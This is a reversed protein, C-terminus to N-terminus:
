NVVKVYGTVQITGSVRELWAGSAAALGDPGYWERASESAGLSVTALIPDTNATGHRINFLAGATGTTERASFGMLRTGAGAAAIAEDTAAENGCDVATAAALQPDAIPIRKGSAADAENFTGDAGWGLKIKQYHKGGILDTAVPPAVTDDGTAAWVKVDDPM